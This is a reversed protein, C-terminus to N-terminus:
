IFVAVLNPIEFAIGDMIKPDWNDLVAAFHALFVLPTAGNHKGLERYAFSVGDAAISQTPVNKWSVELQNSTSINKALTSTFAKM